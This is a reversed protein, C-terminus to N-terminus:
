RVKLVRTKAIMDHLGKKEPNFAIMLFGIYLIAGSVMYGVFRMFATGWGIPDEGDERVIKLGLMKKGPTAGRNAWFWLVYGLGVVASALLVRFGMLVASDPALRSAVLRFFEVTALFVLLGLVVGQGRPGFAAAVTGVAPGVTDM